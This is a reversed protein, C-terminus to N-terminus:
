RNKASNAILHGQSDLGHHLGLAGLDIFSILLARGGGFMQHLFDQGQYSKTGFSGKAQNSPLHLSTQANILDSLGHQPELQCFCEQVMYRSNRGLNHRTDSQGTAQVFVPLHGTSLLPQSNFLALPLLGRIFVSRIQQCFLQLLLLNPPKSFLGNPRNHDLKWRHSTQLTGLFFRVHIAHLTPAYLQAHDLGSHLHYLGPDQATAPGCVNRRRPASRHLGFAQELKDATPM